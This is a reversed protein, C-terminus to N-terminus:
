PYIQFKLSGNIQDEKGKDFNRSLSIFVKETAELPFGFNEKFHAQDNDLDKYLNHSEADMNNQRVLWRIQTFSTKQPFSMEIWCGKKVECHSNITGESVSFKKEVINNKNAVPVPQTHINKRDNELVSDLFYVLILLILLLDAFLILAGLRKRSTISSKSSQFLNSVQEPSRSYYKM